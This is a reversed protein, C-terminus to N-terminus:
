LYSTTIKRGVFAMFHTVYKLFIQAFDIIIVVRVNNFSGM